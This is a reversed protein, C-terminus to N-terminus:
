NLRNGPLDRHSSVCRWERHAAILSDIRAADDADARRRGIALDYKEDNRGPAAADPEDGDHRAISDTQQREAFEHRHAGCHDADDVADRDVPSCRHSRM